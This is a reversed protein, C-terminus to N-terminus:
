GLLGPHEEPEVRRRSARARAAEAQTKADHHERCLVQYNSDHNRGGEAVPIIHDVDKAPAGCKACKYGAKRLARMRYTEPIRGGRERRKSRAWPKEPPGIEVSAPRLDEM